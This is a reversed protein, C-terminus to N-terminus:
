PMAYHRGLVYSPFVALPLATRSEGERVSPLLGLNLEKDLLLLHNLRLGGWRIRELLFPPMAIM